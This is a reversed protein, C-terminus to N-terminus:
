KAQENTNGILYKAEKAVTEASSFKPKYGVLNGAKRSRSFYYDKQGTPSYLKLNREIKYKLSYNKSFYDLLEFKTVPGSSYAEIVDNFPKAKIILCILNFLDESSLFDRTFDRPTTVFVKGENISKILDTLFYGSDLDVFRSFYSFVRLDVINFKDLVRHKAEQYLKALGYFHEPKLDGPSVSYVAGSSFNIYLARPHEKLYRISLRDFEETLSLVDGGTKTIRSPTGLGVCNIIVDYQGRGFQRFGNIRCNPKLGNAKLFYAVRSHNRAFLSLSSKKDKLFNLILGKAIHSTAGLIAIRKKM